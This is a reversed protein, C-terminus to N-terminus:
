AKQKIANIKSRDLKQHHAKENVIKIRAKAVKEIKPKQSYKERLSQLSKQQLSGKSLRQSSKSSLKSENRKLSEKSSKRDM